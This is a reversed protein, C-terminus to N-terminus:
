YVLSFRSGDPDPWFAIEFLEFFDSTGLLRDGSAKITPMLQFTPGWYTDTNPHLLKAAVPVTLVESAMERGDAFRLPPGSARSDSLGLADADATRLSSRTAGSDIM